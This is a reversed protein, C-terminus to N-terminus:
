VPRQLEPSHSFDDLYGLDLPREAGEKRVAEVLQRSVKASHGREPEQVRLRPPTVGFVTVASHLPSFHPGESFSRYTPTDAHPRAALPPVSSGADRNRLGCSILTKQIDKYVGTFPDNSM